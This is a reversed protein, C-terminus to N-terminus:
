HSYPAALPTRFVNVLLALFGLAVVGSGLGALPEGLEPNGAHLLAIGVVAVPLGLNHLWFHAKALVHAALAPYAQYILGSLALSVWGILNAHAHTDRQLFSHTAAMYIGIGIGVIAYVVAIRIFKIAM